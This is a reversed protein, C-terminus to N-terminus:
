AGFRSPLFARELGGQGSVARMVYEATIPASAIGVHGHGFAAIINPEKAFAGIVPMGDPTSPRHGMWLKTEPTNQPALDPYTDWAHRRLVEARRWNPAKDTSALEVQGSLRLGMETPTNAMRGTSPMIPIEFRAAADPITVHYGRESELPVGIGLPRLMQASRVGAAIVIRDATLCTGDGLVVRPCPGGLVSAVSAGRLRVGLGEAAKVIAAVYRGTNPCHAGESVFAGFRYNTGLAPIRTRLTQEDWEEIKVGNDRRIRWSLGEAEFAARSPYAYLLGKHQM